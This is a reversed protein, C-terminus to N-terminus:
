SGTQVAIYQIALYVSKSIAAATLLLTRNGQHYTQFRESSIVEESVTLLQHLFYTIIRGVGEGRRELICWFLHVLHM